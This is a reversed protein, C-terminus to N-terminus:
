NTAQYPGGCVENLDLTISRSTRSGTDQFIGVLADAKEFCKDKLSIVVFQLSDSRNKFYEAVVGVNSSDLAADVEDLVFFPSPRVSQIAFLLALAAVSQEGGSLHQIDTFAKSKPALSYTIPNAYPADVSSELVAQGFGGTLRKYVENIRSNIKEFSTLFAKNRKERVEVYKTRCDQARAHAAEIEAELKEISGGVVELRDEAKYNPAIAELKNRNSQIDAALNSLREERQAQTHITKYEASLEGYDFVIEGEKRTRTELEMATLSQTTHLRPHIPEDVDMKVTDGEEEDEELARRAEDDSDSDSESSASSEGVKPLRIDDAVASEIVQHRKEQLQALSAEKSHINKTLAEKLTKLAETRRLIAKHETELEESAKRCEKFGGQAEVLEENKADSASRLAKIAQEVAAKEARKEIITNRLKEPDAAERQQQDAYAKLNVIRARQTQFMLRKEAETRLRLKRNAEWQMINDIGVRQSFDKLVESEELSISQNLADIQPTRDQIAQNVVEKEAKKTGMKKTIEAIKEVITREQLSANGLESQVNELRANLAACTAQLERERTVSRMQGNIDQVQAIIADRRTKREALAKEEWRVETRKGVSGGTMFGSKAILMGDFTVVKYRKGTGNDFSWWRAKEASACILTSGCVYEMAAQFTPDFKIVDLIPKIVGPELTRLRDYSVNSRISDLPIFTAVGIRQEKMYKLCKIATSEDAVVVADMQAGLAIPIALRYRDQAPEILDIIRGHVGPFLRRMTNVCETMKLQRESESHDVRAKKLDEQIQELEKELTTKQTVHQENMARIENLESQQAKLETRMKEAQQELALARRKAAPLEENEYINLKEELAIVLPEHLEKFVSTDADQDRTLTLLSSRDKATRERAAEKLQVFERLDADTMSQQQATITDNEAKLKAEAEDLKRLDDELQSCKEDIAKRKRAAEVEEAELKEVKRQLHQSENQKSLLETREEDVKKQQRKFLEELSDLEKLKAALSAGASKASASDKGLRRDAEALELRKAQIESSLNEIDKGLHFLQFLLARLKLKTLDKRLKSHTDAERKQEKYEKQEVKLGKRQKEKFNADEKAEDRDSLLKDYEKKYSDSGSIYEFLATLEKPSKRAISEVEGQYPYSHTLGRYFLLPSPFHNSHTPGIPRFLTWNPSGHAKKPAPYRM